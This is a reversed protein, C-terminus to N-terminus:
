ALCDAIMARGLLDRDILAAGVGRCNFAVVCLVIRVDFHPLDLIEVVDELLIVAGDLRATRGISPNLDKQDAAM